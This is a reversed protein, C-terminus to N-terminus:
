KLVEEALKRVFPVAKKADEEAKPWFCYDVCWWKLQDLEPRLAKLTGTFDVRGEGLPYHTSTTNDHLSGDSDILHLHGLFPRLRRAYEVEGGRLTEPMGAQRAGHVAGMYAHSTDFLLKFNTHDIAEVLRKVESPKNLFFGPEFEWVLLVGAQRCIEAAKRWTLAVHGFNQEYEGSPLGRPSSVTDVRLRDIELRNCFLLCKQIIKLYDQTEVEAPPNEKFDPAFASIGLGLNSITAKLEKCKAPTDYDDQNPHPRGGSIEVGDYGAESAYHIFRDFSWPDAAFSGFSFAWSGLSIKPIQMLEDTRQIRFQNSYIIGVM